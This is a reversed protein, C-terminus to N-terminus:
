ILASLHAAVQTSRHRRSFAPQRTGSASSLSYQCNWTQFWISSREESCKTTSTCCTQLGRIEKDCNVIPREQQNNTSELNLGREVLWLLDPDWAPFLLESSFYSRSIFHILGKKERLTVESESYRPDVWILNQCFYCLNPTGLGHDFNSSINAAHLKWQIKTLIRTEISFFFPDCLKKSYPCTGRLSRCLRQASINNIM